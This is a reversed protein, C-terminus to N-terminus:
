QMPPMAENQSISRTPPNQAYPLLATGRGIQPCAGAFRIRAPPAGITSSPIM